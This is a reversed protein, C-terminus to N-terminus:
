GIRMLRKSPHNSLIFKRCEAILPFESPWCLQSEIEADSVWRHADHEENLTPEATPAVVAVFFPVHWITDIADMYFQELSSLRYFEFPTLGTEEHLERLAAQVSTEAGECRGRCLSWHGGMYDGPARRLQLHQWLGAPMQRLILVGAM